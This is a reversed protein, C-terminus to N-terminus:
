QNRTRVLLTVGMCGYLRVLLTVIYVLLFIPLLTLVRCPKISTLIISAGKVIGLFTCAVNYLLPARAEEFAARAFHWLDVDVSQM